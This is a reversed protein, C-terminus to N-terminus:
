GAIEWRMHQRSNLHVWGNLYRNIHTGHAGAKVVGIMPFRYTHGKGKRDVSKVTFTCDFLVHKFTNCTAGLSKLTHGRDLTKQVAPKYARLSADLKQRDTSAYAPGVMVLSAVAVGLCKTFKNM